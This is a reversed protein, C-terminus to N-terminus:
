KQLLLEDYHKFPYPVFFYCDAAVDKFHVVKEAFIESNNIPGRARGSSGIFEAKDTQGDTQLAKKETHASVNRM